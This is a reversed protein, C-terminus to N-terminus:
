RFIVKGYVKASSVKLCILCKENLSFVVPQKQWVGRTDSRHEFYDNFVVGGGYLGFTATLLWFLSPNAFNSINWVGSTESWTVLGIVFGTAIDAFATVINAPRM